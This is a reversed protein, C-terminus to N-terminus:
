VTFTQLTSDLATQATFHIIVYNPKRMGFNVTGVWDSPVDVGSSDKLMVPQQLQLVRALSDVQHSYVKNTVAYPGKPSCASVLLGIVLIVLYWTQRCASPYIHTNSFAKEMNGKGDEMKFYPYIRTDKFTKSGADQRQSRDKYTNKLVHYQIHSVTFNRIFM